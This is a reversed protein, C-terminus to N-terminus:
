EPGLELRVWDGRVQTHAPAFGRERYAAAVEAAQEVLIGSLVVRQRAIRRFHPALQILENAFINAVIIDFPETISEVRATSLEIQDADNLACNEVALEIAMSDTDVGRVRGAGLKRAAIALVGSGTGVDLVSQGPWLTLYQDLVELCLQTTPHDGTGFAMKPEILIRVSGPAADGARWPPGVWIRGVQSSRVQSKWSESWDECLAEGLTLAAEPLARQIEARAREAQDREAFFAVVRVKGGPLPPEGPMPRVSPERIELGLSGNEHLLWQALEASAEVLEASLAFYSARMSM